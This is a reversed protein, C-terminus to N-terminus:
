SPQETPPFVCDLVDSQFTRLSVALHAVLKVAVKNVACHVEDATIKNAELVTVRDELSILRAVFSSLNRIDENQLITQLMALIQTNGEGTFTAMAEAILQRTTAEATAIANAQSQSIGSVTSTGLTTLDSALTAIQTEVRELESRASAVAAARAAEAVSESHAKLRRGLECATSKLKAVMDDAHVKVAAEVTVSNCEGDQRANQHVEQAEEAM